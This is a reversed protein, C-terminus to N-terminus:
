MELSDIISDEVEIEKETGQAKIV